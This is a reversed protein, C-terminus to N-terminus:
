VRRIGKNVYSDGFLVRTEAARQNNIRFEQEMNIRNITTGIPNFIASLTNLTNNLNRNFVYNGTEKSMFSSVTKVASVAVKTAAYAIAVKGAIPLFSPVLGEDSPTTDINPKTPSPQNLPKPTTPSVSSSGNQSHIYIHYDM